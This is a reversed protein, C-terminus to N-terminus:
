LYSYHEARAPEFQILHSKVMEYGLEKTFARNLKIQVPEHPVSPLFYVLAPQYIRPGM